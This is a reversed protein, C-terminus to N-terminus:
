ANLWSHYLAEVEAALDDLPKQTCLSRDCLAAKQAVPMQSHIRALAEQRAMGDRSRLRAIQTEEDTFVCLTQTCLQDFGAELLLPVDLVVLPAGGERCRNIESQMRSLILPHTISNLRELQARDGFVLAALAKRDLTGDPHFVTDGFSKRIPPLAEGGPATLSRSIADADIVPAGLSRLMAAVTSKGCAIGGTLGIIQM